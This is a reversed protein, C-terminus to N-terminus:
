LTSICLPGLLSSGPKTNGLEPPKPLQSVIRSYLPPLTVISKIYKLFSNYAM